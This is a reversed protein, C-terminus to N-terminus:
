ESQSIGVGDEQHRTLLFPQLISENRRLLSKNKSGTNSSTDIM